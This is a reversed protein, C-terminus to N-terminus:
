FFRSLDFFRLLRSVFTCPAERVIIEYIRRESPSLRDPSNRLREGFEAAQALEGRQMQLPALLQGRQKDTGLIVFLSGDPFEAVAGRGTRITVREGAGNLKVTKKM